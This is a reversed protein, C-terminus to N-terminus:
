EGVDEDCCEDDDLEFNEKRRVKLVTVILNHDDFKSTVTCEGIQFTYFQSGYNTRLYVSRPDSSLVETITKIEVGLENMQKSARDTFCVKLKPSALVWNAVKVPTTAIHATAVTAASTSPKQPQPTSDETEEGDPAERTDYFDNTARFQTNPDDYMPIYPKIDLVPTEDVMDTGYFHVTTGEISDIQVLSLGIPCPRHPSRCSFVGIKKGDLRPPAVKAKPHSDNKHFWYLIWMHSFDELGDLSHEPNTFIDQSITLSARISGGISSQRPVAKKDKFDTHIVGIPKLFLNETPNKTPMSDDVPKVANKACDSCQFKSLLDKIETVEKHHVLSLTKM